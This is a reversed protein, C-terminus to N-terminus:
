EANKEGKQYRRIDGWIKKVMKTAETLSCEHIDRYCVTAAVPGKDILIDIVNPAATEKLFEMDVLDQTYGAWFIDDVIQLQRESFVKGTHASQYYRM